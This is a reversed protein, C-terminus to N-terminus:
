PFLSWQQIARFEARHNQIIVSLNDRRHKLFGIAEEVEETTVGLEATDRCLGEIFFDPLAAIRERWGGFETDASVVDLMCHRNPGTRSGGSCGLRDRLDQLRGRGGGAVYGFLAHSHDFVSMAPPSTSHDVAFNGRHRDCNATLIDFLLLGASERPLAAYCRAPDVPPLTNGTLNFDMSAFWVPQLANATRVIGCPPIPLRLFRGLEACILENAICYPANPGNTKAVAALQVQLSGAVGIGMQQGYTMLRYQQAAM